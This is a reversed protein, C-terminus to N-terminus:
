RRGRHDWPQGVRRLGFGFVLGVAALGAIGLWPVPLSAASNNRELAALRADLTAVQQELAANREKLAAVTQASTAGDNLAAMLQPPLYHGLQLWALLKGDSAADSSQMAYGIIQGAQTAKMAAGPTSSSTLPDGVAIPGNELSFKVPVRGIMAVVTKDATILQTNEGALYTQGRDFVLGPNTSVVGVLGGDYASRALRVTPTERAEPLLVVLDGPETQETTAFSEAVDQNCHVNINLGVAGPDSFDGCKGNFGSSARVKGSVDLKYSPDTKGIGVNGSFQNIFLASTGLPANVPDTYRLINLGVLPAREDFEIAFGYNEQWEFLKIGTRRVNGGAATLKIYRDVNDYAGIQLDAGTPTSATGVGLKSTVNLNGSVTASPITANAVLTNATLALTAQQAWPVPHLRQRPAMEQSDPAVTIGIFRPGDSFVSANIPTPDGLVVTFLGDRVPINNVAQTFLLNAPASLVPDNYIRFTMNRAGTVLAGQDDRLIGQYNLTNAIALPANPTDPSAYVPLRGQLTLVLTAVALMFAALALLESRRSRM